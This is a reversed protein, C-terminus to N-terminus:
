LHVSLEVKYVNNETHQHLHYNEPYILALRRKVNILGIGSSADKEFTQQASVSNSVRFYLNSANLKMEIQISPHEIEQSVHKFANEVFPILLMPAIEIDSTIEDPFVSEISIQNGFRMTQLEIYSRLYAVETVLAIKESESEYLMYQLLQSLQILMPELQDSKKRALSVMNNLVNFIFHPNVQSRLFQLETSLQAAELEKQRKDLVSKDVLIRYTLSMTYVLLAPFVLIGMFPGGWRSHPSMHYVILLISPLLILALASLSIFAYRWKNRYFFRPIIWFANLYFFLMLSFNVSFITFDTYQKGPLKDPKGFNPPMPRRGDGRDFPAPNANPQLPQISQAPAQMHKFEPPMRKDMPNRSEMAFFPLLLVVLWFLLHLIIEGPKAVQTFSRIIKM